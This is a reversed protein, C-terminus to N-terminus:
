KVGQVVQNRIYVPQAQAASVSVVRNHDLLDILDTATPYQVLTQQMQEQACQPLETLYPEWGVGALLFPQKIDHLIDAPKTVFELALDDAKAYFAWYLQQMRADMVALVPLIPGTQQQQVHHAIAALGSVPYLPLDHAYALGKAVSCAIRLGTFSGPGRGFVLGDLDAIKVQAEHLVSHILPLIGRAHEDVKDAHGAYCVGNFRLAVSAASTSTDIALLNMM